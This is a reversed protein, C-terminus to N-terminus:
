FFYILAFFFAMALVGLGLEIKIRKAKPLVGQRHKENRWKDWNKDEAYGM